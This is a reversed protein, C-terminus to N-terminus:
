KSAVFTVILTAKMTAADTADIGNLLTETVPRRNEAKLTLAADGLHVPIFEDLTTTVGVIINDEPIRSSCKQFSTFISILTTSEANSSPKEPAGFYKAATPDGCIEFVTTQRVYLVMNKLL